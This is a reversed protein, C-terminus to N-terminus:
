TTPLAFVVRWGGLSVAVASASVSVSFSFSGLLFSRFSGSAGRLSVRLAAGVGARVVSPLCFPGGLVPPGSVFSARRSSVSVSFSVPAVLPFRPFAFRVACAVGSALSWAVCRAARPGSGSVSLLRLVM